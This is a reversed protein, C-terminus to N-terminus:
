RPETDAEVFMHCGICPYELDYGGSGHRSPHHSLMGPYQKFPKRTDGPVWGHEGRLVAATWWKLWEVSFKAPASTPLAAGAAPAGAAADGDADDLAQSSPPRQSSPPDAARAPRAAARPAPPQGAAGGEGDDDTECEIRDDAAAPTTTKTALRPPHM